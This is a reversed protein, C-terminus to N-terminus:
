NESVTRWGASLGALDYWDIRWDGTHGPAREALTVLTSGRIDFGLLRDRVRVTGAYSTGNWVDFYSFNERDRTTAVWFRGRGDFHFPDPKLIWERPERRFDELIAEIQEESLMSQRGVDTVAERHDAVDRDGPLLEMYSPPTVVTAVPAGPNALFALDRGCVEFVVSGDPGMIGIAGTFCERGVVGALDTRQWLIEGTNADAIMPVFAPLKEETSFDLMGLKFGFLRGDHLQAPQFIPPLSVESVLTGDTEFVSMRGARHNLAVVRGGPSPEIGVLGAFEGPGEGESGFMTTAGGYRDVCYVQSEFGMLTCVVTESVLAIDALSSLPAPNTAFPVLEAVPLVPPPHPDASCGAGAALIFGAVPLSKKSM